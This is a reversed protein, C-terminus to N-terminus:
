EFPHYFHLYCMVDNSKILGAEETPRGIVSDPFEAILKEDSEFLTYMM